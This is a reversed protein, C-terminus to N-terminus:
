GLAGVDGALGDVGIAAEVHGLAATPLDDEIKYHRLMNVRLKSPSREGAHCM